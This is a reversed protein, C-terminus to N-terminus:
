GGVGEEAPIIKMLRERAESLQQEEARMRCRLAINVVAGFAEDLLERTRELSLEAQKLRQRAAAIELDLFDMM